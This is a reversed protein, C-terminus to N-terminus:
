GFGQLLLLHAKVQLSTTTMCVSWPIWVHMVVGIHVCLLYEGMCVNQYIVYGKDCLCEYSGATNVCSGNTGCINATVSCENVDVSDSYMFFVFPIVVTTNSEAINTHKKVDM